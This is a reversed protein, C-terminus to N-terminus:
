SFEGGRMLKEVNNGQRIERDTRDALSRIGAGDILFVCDPRMLDNKVLSTNHTACITQCSSSEGFYEVLKEAMEYHCYADFEDIFYFSMRRMEYFYFINLITETGSSCAEAFPVPRKHDFYLAKSGDPETKVVLHEDVGFRCLFAEFSSVRDQDIISKIIHNRAARGRLESSLSLMRFVLSAFQAFIGLREPPISNVLYAALGLYEDAFTFNLNEAGVLSLDGDVLRGHRNDFDFVLDEAIYLRESVLRQNDDKEYQYRLNTNEFSFLYDFAATDGDSDANLFPPDIKSYREREERNVYVLNNLVDTIACGFNTKGSANKGLLLANTIIGSRVNKENFRYDRVGSLDLTVPDRFNRYGKVTFSKLM